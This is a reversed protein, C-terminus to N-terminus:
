NKKYATEGTYAVSGAFFCIVSPTCTCGEMDYQDCGTSLQGTSGQFGDKAVPPDRKRRAIERERGTEVIIVATPDDEGQYVDTPPVM